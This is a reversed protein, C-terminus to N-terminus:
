RAGTRVLQRYENLKALQIQSMRAITALPSTECTRGCVIGPISLLDEHFALNRSVIEAEAADVHRQLATRSLGSRVPRVLEELIRRLGFTPPEAPILLHSVVLHNEDSRRLAPM